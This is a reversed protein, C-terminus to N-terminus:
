RRRLFAILAVLGLALFGPEPVGFVYVNLHSVFRPDGGPWWGKYYAVSDVPGKEIGDTYNFTHNPSNEFDYGGIARVCNGKNGTDIRGIRYLTSDQNFIFTSECWKDIPGDNGFMIEQNNESGDIKCCTKWHWNDWFRWFTMNNRRVDFRAWGEFSHAANGLQVAYTKGEYADGDDIDAIFGSSNNNPIFLCNVPGGNFEVNTIYADHSVDRLWEPAIEELSQGEEFESFDISRVLKKNIQVYEVKVDDYYVGPTSTEPNIASLGQFTWVSKVSTFPLGAPTTEAFGTGAVMFRTIYFSNNLDADDTRLSLQFQGVVGLDLTDNAGDQWYCKFTDLNLPLALYGQFGAPLTVYGAGDATTVTPIGKNTYYTVTAGEKLDFSQHGVVQEEFAVRFRFPQTLKAGDVAVVLDSAGSWDTDAQPDNRYPMDRDFSGSPLGTQKMTFSLANAANRTRIDIDYYNGVGYWDYGLMNGFPTLVGDPYVPYLGEFAWATKVSTYPLGAPTAEAFSPGAVMFSTIYFSNNLDADDTRLSLQFQGVAGLDLDENAGDQWYCKFTDLNLPLALYGQFGAPFTVYGASDATTATAIGGMTYYTVAAGDKLDFSQHGVVQEEFAVRFRFPQTLNSGDIAVILDTAGTWDTDRKPANRYVVDRDFSGGPLGAQKMTFCLANAFNHSKINMDYYNGFGYWDYGLLGPFSTLAGNAFVLYKFGDCRRLFLEANDSQQRVGDVYFEVLGTALEMSLFYDQWTGEEICNRFSTTIGSDRTYNLELGQNVFDQGNGTSEFNVVPRKYNNDTDTDSYNALVRCESLDQGPNQCRKFSVNLYNGPELEVESDDIPIAIGQQQQCDGVQNIKLVKNGEVTEITAGDTSVAGKQTAPSAVMDKQGLAAGESCDEFDLDVLTVASDALAFSALLILSLFLNFKKM